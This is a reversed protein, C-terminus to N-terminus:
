SLRGFLHLAWGALGAGAVVWAVGVKTRLLLALAALALVTGAIPFADLGAAFGHPFFTAAAFMTALHAIGGLVAASVGALAARLRRQRRVREVHPAMLFVLVFSPLFTAYTAAAAGLLGSAPPSLDGPQNWGAMYGLFQLVMILPGPTTEALALGDITQSATVWGLEPGLTEAVYTLVSYAGGLTMVATQSFFRYLETHRSDWGRSAVLAGLGALWLALGALLVAAAHRWPRNGSM